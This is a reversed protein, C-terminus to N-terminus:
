GFRKELKEFITQRQKRIHPALQVLASIEKVWKRGLWRLSLLESKEFRSLKETDTLWIRKLANVTRTSFWLEKLIEM